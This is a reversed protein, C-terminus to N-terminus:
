PELRSSSKHTAANALTPQARFLVSRPDGSEAIAGGALRVVMDCHEVTSIRHAIILITKRGQLAAVAQMVGRETAVDLASTAEDLMLMPPDHYLARAIGIRQRQGGSIRVGREGVITDLGEPLQGVFDELQAARIARTM